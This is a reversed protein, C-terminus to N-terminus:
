GVIIQHNALLEELSTDNIGNFTVIHSWGYQGGAGDRDIWLESNGGNVRLDLYQAIDDGADITPVGNIYHAPGDADAVYGVLLAKLDIRDADPTAEYTGITFGNIVDTGNGGDSLANNIVEYLITDRGGHILNYTDNGGGGNFVNDQANDTFTDNGNGGRIGQIGVFKATNFGTQQYDVNSLDINLAQNGAL